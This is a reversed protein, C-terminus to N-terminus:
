KSEYSPSKSVFKDHKEFQLNAVMVLDAAEIGTTNAVFRIDIHKWELCYHSGYGAARLIDGCRSALASQLVISSVKSWAVDWNRVGENIAFSLFRTVILRIVMLGVWQKAMSPEM